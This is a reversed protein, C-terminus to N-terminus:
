PQRAASPSSSAIDHLETQLHEWEAREAHDYAVGDLPLLNDRYTAWAERVRPDPGPQTLDEPTATTM